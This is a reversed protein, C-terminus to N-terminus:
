LLHTIKLTDEGYPGNDHVIYPSIGLLGVKDTDEVEVYRKNLHTSFFIIGETDLEIDDHLLYEITWTSQDEIKGEYDKELINELHAIIDQTFGIYGGSNLFKFPGTRVKQDYLHTYSTAPWLESEACFVISKNFTLFTEIITEPSKYFNTDTADVFLMYKYKGEIHSQLYPLLQKIKYTYLKEYLSAERPVGHLRVIHIDESNFYKAAKNYIRPLSDEPYDFFVTVIALDKLM